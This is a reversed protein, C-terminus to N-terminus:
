GSWRTNGGRLRAEERAIPGAIKLRKMQASDILDAATQLLEFGRASDGAHFAGAADAIFGGLRDDEAIPAFIPDDIPARLAVIIVDKVYEQLTREGRAQKLADRLEVPIRVNLPVIDDPM